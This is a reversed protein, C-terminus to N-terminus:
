QKKQRKVAPPPQPSMAMYRASSTFCWIIAKNIELTEKTQRAQHTQQPRATLM